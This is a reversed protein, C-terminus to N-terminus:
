DLGGGYDGGGVETTAENGRSHLTTRLSPRM